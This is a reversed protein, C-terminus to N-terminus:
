TGADPAAPIAAFDPGKRTRPVLQLSEPTLLRAPLSPAKRDLFEVDVVAADDRAVFNNLWDNRAYRQPPVGTRGGDDARYVTIEHYGVQEGTWRIRDALNDARGRGDVRFLPAGDAGTSFISDKADVQALPLEAEDISTELHVLGGKARSLVRDLRLALSPTERAPTTCGHAHLLSGDAAVIVNDLRADLRQNSSVTIADGVTRLFADRIRVVAPGTSAAAAKAPLVAVAAHAPAQGVLSVTCDTLEVSAGAVLGVAALRGMSQHDLDEVVLDLGRLKLEGGQVNFLSTWTSPSPTGFPSPRLRLRPRHEGPEAAFSWSGAPLDITALELEVGSAIHVEGGDPGLHTILNQLQEPSRAVDEGFTTAVRPRTEAHAQDPAAPAAVASPEPAVAGAAAVEFHTEEEDAADLKTMPPMTPVSPPDDTSAVAEEVPAAVPAPAPPTPDRPPPVAAVPGIAPAVAMTASPLVISGPRAPVAEAIQAGFPGKSAGLPTTRAHSAAVRFVRSPSERGLALERAPEPTEWVPPAALVSRVERLDARWRDFDRVADESAPKGAVELFAGFDGYLNARGAWALTRPDDVVALSRAPISSDGPAFVCDDVQFRAQPGRVQFVPAAGAMFSSRRILVDRPGPTTADDDDLLVATGGPGFTCDVLQLDTPGECDFAAAGTDFHCQEAVIAPPRGGAAPDPRSVRGLIAPLGAGASADAPRRFACGKLRLEADDLLIAAVRDDLARDEAEFTLGEIAIRGRTFTLLASASRDGSRGDAAFRLVPRRGTEARITVDRAVDSRLATARGALLYPGDETLTVVSKHPAAAIVAALDEGPRVDIKRPASSTAALGAAPTLPPPTRSGRLPSYEVVPASASPDALERTWFFLGAALLVFGLPTLLVLPREWAPRDAQPAAVDFHPLALGARGAVHLLDRVLQEPSQCRRDRDKALLKELVRALAPPVTPNLERVDPPPEEQHQLLKQLVTGGPFPPQGTLMHFLTCGLSYLDSRVDVSRPDRAQEPSIYDFTGLTMGTQTLGGREGRREFRRALGMDVLKARGEPTIIINSPKVDRHVVGRIAAHVLAQAIQLTVDVAEAVPMPGGEDVRRRVTEGAVYEFIIFHWPGDQGLSYVRAINEHDLRAASRGEQYFRQVVEPDDIQEPPLLKLAVQRDLTSDHARFVAGM